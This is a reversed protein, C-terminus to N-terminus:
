SILQLLIEALNVLVFRFNLTMKLAVEKFLLKTILLSFSLRSALSAGQVVYPYPFQAVVCFPVYRTHVM